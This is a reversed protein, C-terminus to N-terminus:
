DASEMCVAVLGGILQEQGRLISWSIDNSSWGAQKDAFKKDQM